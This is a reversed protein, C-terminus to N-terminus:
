FYNQFYEEGFKKHDYSVFHILFYCFEKIRWEHKDDILVLHMFFYCSIHLLCFLKQFQYARLNFIQVSQSHWVKFAITQILNARIWFIQLSNISLGISSINKSCTASPIISFNEWVITSIFIM